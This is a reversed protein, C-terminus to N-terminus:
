LLKKLFTIWYVAVTAYDVLQGIVTKPINDYTRQNKKISQDLLNRGDIM